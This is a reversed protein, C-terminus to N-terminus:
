LLLAKSMDKEDKLAVRAISRFQQMWDHLAQYAQDRRATAEMADGAIANQAEDAAALAHLAAAYGEIEEPAFGYQGLITGYPETLAARYSTEAMTLFNQRDGPVRGRIALASVDTEEKFLARAVARFESYSSRAEAEAGALKAGAQRQSAIAKQRDYFRDNTEAQLASGEGLKAEDYGHAALKEAIDPQEQVTHIMQEAAAIEHAIDRDQEAYERKQTELDEQVSNM